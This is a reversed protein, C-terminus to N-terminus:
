RRKQPSFTNVLVFVTPPCDPHHVQGAYNPTHGMYSTESSGNTWLKAMATWEPVPGIFAVKM